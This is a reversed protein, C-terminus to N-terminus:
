RFSAKAAKPTKIRIPRYAFPEVRYGANQVQKAELIRGDALRARTANGLLMRLENDIEDREEKAVGGAKETAKLPERREILEAVRPNNALNIESGDDEAFMAKIAEGDRAFDPPYLRDDAIRDWFDRVLTRTKAMLAAHLPIECLHFDFGYGSITAGACAWSAGSLTAEGIAQIAVAAPPVCGDDDPQWKEEFASGIMDKSQFVGLGERDPDIVFADPTSSLGTRRDIYVRGGPIANSLARWKPRLMRLLEFSQPEMMNGKVVPPVHISNALIKVQPFERKYQGKKIAMLEFPTLHDHVGFLAPVESTGLLRMGLWEERSAPRFVEVGEPVSIAALADPSLALPANM